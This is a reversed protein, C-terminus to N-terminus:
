LPDQQTAQQETNEGGSGLSVSLPNNCDPINMAVEVCEDGNELACM